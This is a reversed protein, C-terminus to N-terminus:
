KQLTLVVRFDKIHSVYYLFFAKLYQQTAPDELKATTPVLTGKQLAQLLMGMATPNSAAQAAVARLKPTPYTLKLTNDSSLEYDFCVDSLIKRAVSADPDDLKLISFQHADPDYQYNGGVSKENEGEYLVMLLEGEPKCEMSKVIKGVQLGLSMQVMPDTQDVLLKGAVEPLGKKPKSPDPSYIPFDDCYAKTAESKVIVETGSVTWTGLIEEDEDQHKCSLMMGALLAGGLLFM